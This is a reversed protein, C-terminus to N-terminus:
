QSFFNALCSSAISYCYSRLKCLPAMSFSKDERQELQEFTKISEINKYDINIIQNSDLLKQKAHIFSEDSNQATASGDKNFQKEDDVFLKKYLLIESTCTWWSDSVEFCKQLCAPLLTLNDEGFSLFTRFNEKQKTM